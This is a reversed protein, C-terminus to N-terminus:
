LAARITEMPLFFTLSSAPFREFGYAVYFAAAEEDLAHVMLARARIIEAAQAGPSVCGEDAGRGLGRGQHRMEVALRGILIVPVNEPMNRQLAKPADGRHVAGAAFCYYAAVDGGACAVYTRASQGEARLARSRLWEDLAPKGCSFDEIRHESSLPQPAAIAVNTM